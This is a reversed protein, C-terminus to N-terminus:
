QTVEVLFEQSTGAASPQPVPPAVSVVLTYRHGGAVALPALTLAVSGDVPVEVTAKVSGGARASSPPTTGPLDALALTATVTATGEVVAGCNTVTVTAQVTGTPPLVTPSSSPVASVPSACGEGFTGGVGTQGAPPPSLGGSGPPVVAPPAIGVASVIVSPVPAYAKATALVGALGGLATPTLEGRAWRSAPLRVPARGTRASAVLAAYAADSGALITGAAALRAGAEAVTVQPTPGPASAGSPAGAVPLPALELLGDLASRIAAAAAAREDVVRALRAAVSGQPPPPELGALHSAAHRSARVAADLAAQLELRAAGPGTLVPASSSSSSSAPSSSKSSAHTTTTTSSSATSTTTTSSSATRSTSGGATSTTTTSSSATRSASGGATTTTTTSSTTATSSPSTARAGGRGTSVPSRTSTSRSAAGAGPTSSPAPAVPVGAATSLAADLAAATANSQDVVVSAMSGYAADTMTRYSGSRASIDVVSGVVVATVVAALAM